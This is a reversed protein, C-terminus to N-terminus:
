NYGVGTKRWESFNVPLDPATRRVQHVVMVHVSILFRGTAFVIISFPVVTKVFPM